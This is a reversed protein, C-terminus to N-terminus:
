RLEGRRVAILASHGLAGIAVLPREIRGALDTAEALHRAAADLRGAWLEAAGLSLLGLARPDSEGPRLTAAARDLDGAPAGLHAARMLRAVALRTASRGRRRTRVAGALEAAKALQADAEEWQGSRIRDAAITVAIEADGEAVKPPLARLLSTLTPAAGDLLLGPWHDSLLTAALAYDEGQEAQRLAQAILGRDALWRAARRHLQRAGAPLQRRLDVRLLDVLLQHYRFWTREADVATVFANADELELLLREGDDRGTLADALQGNVHELICTRLLLDRVDDPQHALVEGILYEAVTRETGSFAAVASEPDPTAALFMAALRLGAAWGETRERLQAVAPESLTVGADHLLADAEGQTFRLDHARIEVLDGALRLRHLGLSPDRRTLLILRRGPPAGVLLSALAANADVSTLHHIDDIVLTLAEPLGDQSGNTPVGAERLARTIERWFDTADWDRRDITAWAVPGPAAAHDRLWTRVLVTKGAGAPASVLTLERQAGSDLLAYLRPRPVVTRAGVQATGGDLM